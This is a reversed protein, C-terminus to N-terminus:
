VKQRFRVDRLVTCEGLTSGVGNLDARMAASVVHDPVYLDQLM